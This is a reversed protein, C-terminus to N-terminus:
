FGAKLYIWGAQQKRVLEAIGHPVTTAFPVIGERKIKRQNLTYECAVLSVDTFGLAQIGKAYKSKEVLLFDIGPGHCLIEISTNPLEKKLNRIQGVLSKYVLSDSTQVQFIVKPIEQSFSLQAFLMLLLVTGTIKTNKM